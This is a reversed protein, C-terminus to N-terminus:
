WFVYRKEEPLPPSERDLQALHANVSERFRGGATDESLASNRAYWYALQKKWAQRLGRHTYVAYAYDGSVSEASLGDGIGEVRRWTSVFYSEIAENMAHFTAEDADSLEAGNLGDIWLSQNNSIMEALGSIVESRSSMADVFAITRDQRMQLGVFILSAVVAFIGFVQMWDNLKATNM